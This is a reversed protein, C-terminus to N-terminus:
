YYIRCLAFKDSLFIIIILLHQQNVTVHRHNYPDVYVDRRRGREVREMEIHPHNEHKDAM